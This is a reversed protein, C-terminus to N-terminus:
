YLLVLSRPLCSLMRVELLVCSWGLGTWKGENFSYKQQTKISINQQSLSLSFIYYILDSNRSLVLIIHGSPQELDLRGVLSIDVPIERSERSACYINFM